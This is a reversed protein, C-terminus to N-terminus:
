EIADKKFSGPQSSTSKVARNADIRKMECETVRFCWFLMAFFALIIFM